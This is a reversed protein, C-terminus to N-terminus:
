IPIKEELIFTNAEGYYTCTRAAVDVIWKEVGTKASDECFTYYSTKGQQHIKLYYKFRETDVNKAIFLPKYQADSIINYNEKGKYEAHGDTVYIIYELVGLEALAQIYSPFNAGSRIKSHATEIETLTFM